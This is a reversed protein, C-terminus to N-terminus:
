FNRRLRQKMEVRGPKIAVPPSPPREPAVPRAPHRVPLRFNCDACQRIGTNMEKITLVQDGRVKYFHQILGSAPWEVEIKAVSAASGLGFHLTTENHSMYNSNLNMVRVQVPDDIRPWVRVSAGIGDHNSTTGQLRVRLWHNDNGGDNRLLAPLKNNIVVFVDQDGDNDYDFVVLGKSAGPNDFGTDAAVDTMHDGDNRWLRLPENNFQDEVGTGPFVMGNAQVLDLDGDNDFDLASAGWGWGGDTVQWNGIKLGSDFHGSGDNIFLRNGSSGWDCGSDPPCANLQDYVSTVFWDLHGDGNFDAIAAGMGDEETGVGVTNTLDTFDLGQNNHLLHSTGFDGAILIDAWGDEDVDAFGPTFGMTDTVMGSRATIDTFFGKGDNEFLRNLSLDLPTHRLEWAVILLDLDGDNDIDGFAASTSKHEGGERPLNVGRTAAVDHFHGNGENLFLYNRTAVTLVMLDQDGDNDIDAWACGSSASDLDVGAASGVEEFTGDGNNHFLLNPLSLRTVYLDAFGDADYDGAAAGGLMDKLVGIRPANARDGQPYALGATQTVDTFTVSLATECLLSLFTYVIARATWHHKRNRRM